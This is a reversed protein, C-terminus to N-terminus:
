IPHHSQAMGCMGWWPGHNALVRVLKGVAPHQHGLYGPKIVQLENLPLKIM